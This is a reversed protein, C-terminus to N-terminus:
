TEKPEKAEVFAAFNDLNESWFAEYAQLWDEASALPTANLACLHTRGKISRNILGAKELVLLHKSIANLSMGFPKALDTVMAPGTKLRALLARRTSNALAQFIIDLRDDSIPIALTM